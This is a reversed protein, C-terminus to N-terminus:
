LTDVHMERSIENLRGERTVSGDRSQIPRGSLGESENGDKGKM